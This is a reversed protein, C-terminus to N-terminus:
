AKRIIIFDLVHRPHRLSVLAIVLTWDDWWLNAASIKRAALRLCVAIAAVLILSITGGYVGSTRSQYYTDNSM